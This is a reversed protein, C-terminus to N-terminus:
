VLDQRKDDSGELSHSRNRAPISLNRSEMSVDNLAGYRIAYPPSPLELNRYLDPKMRRRTQPTQMLLPSPPVGVKALFRERHAKESKYLVNRKAIINRTDNLSM